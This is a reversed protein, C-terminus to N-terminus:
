GVAGAARLRGVAADDYGAERLVADTHEGLAPIRGPSPAHTLPTSPSVLRGVEAPALVPTVPVGAKRLQALWAQSSRSAFLTEMAAHAEPSRDLRLTEDIGTSACFRSWFKEELAAFALLRDDACRYLRYCPMLGTLEWGEHDDGPQARARALPLANFALAADALAVEVRAGQGTRERALLAALVGTAGFLAGGLDAVQSAPPSPERASLTLMGALAQYNLDHGADDRYEGPPYGVLACRVLRPNVAALTADSLGFRDMVGPRFSEVLVDARAALRRVVEAGEATKLDVVISRKGRNTAAFAYGAGDVEPPLLRTEDGVGPAEVKVVDAGLDALISTLFPGPLLRSLDVVRLGALPRM